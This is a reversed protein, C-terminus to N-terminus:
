EEEEVQSNDTPDSKVLLESNKQFTLQNIKASNSAGGEYNDDYVIDVFSLLSLM